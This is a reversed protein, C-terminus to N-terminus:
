KASPRLAELEAREPSGAPVVDVYRRQALDFSRRTHFTWAAAGADRAALFAARAHGPTSDFVGGCSDCFRSFPMPEQLYIPRTTGAAKRLASVTGGVTAVEFWRNVDRGDHYAAVFRPDDGGIFAADEGAKESGVSGSDLSATVLRSADLGRVHSFISKMEDRTTWRPFENNLDFLVHPHGGALGQTVEGIQARYDEPSLGELTDSTFTLDVLLGHAAARDLVRILVNWKDRRIRATAGDTGDATFLSDDNAKAGSAYHYWNPLIRIGDIGHTKFYVLDTDIDGERGRCDGTTELCVRRLADFYSVFLLFRPQGNVTLQAGSVGLLPPPAPADASAAPARRTTDPAQTVAIAAAITGVGVLAGVWLRV